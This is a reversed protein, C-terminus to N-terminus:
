PLGPYCAEVLRAQVLSGAYVGLSRLATTTAYIALDPSLAPKARLDGSFQRGLVVPVNSAVESPASRNSGSDLVSSVEAKLTPDSLGHAVRGAIILPAQM